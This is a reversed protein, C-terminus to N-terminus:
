NQAINVGMERRQPSSRVSCRETIEDPHILHLRGTLSFMDNVKELVTQLPLPTILDMKSVGTHEAYSTFRRRVPDDYPANERGSLERLEEFDNKIFLHVM